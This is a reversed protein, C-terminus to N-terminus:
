GMVVGAKRYMPSRLICHPLDICCAHISRGSYSLRRCYRLAEISFHNRSRRGVHALRVRVRDEMCQMSWQMELNLRDPRGESRTWYLLYAEARMQEDWILKRGWDIEGNRKWISKNLAWFSSCHLSKIKLIHNKNIKRWNYASWYNGHSWDSNFEWNWHPCDNLVSWNRQLWRRSSLLMRRRGVCLRRRSVQRRSWYLLDAEGRKEEDWFLIRGWDLEFNRKWISKNHAWFTYSNVRKLKLIYTNISGKSTQCNFIEITFQM